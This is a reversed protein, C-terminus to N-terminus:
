VLNLVRLSTLNSRITSSNKLVKDFDNTITSAAKSAQCHRLPDRCLRVFGPMKDVRGADGAFHKYSFTSRASPHGM